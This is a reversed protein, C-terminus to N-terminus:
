FFVIVRTDLSVKKEERLFSTRQYVHFYTRAVTVRGARVEVEREEAELTVSQGTRARLDVQAQWLHELFRKKDHATKQPNLNSPLPPHVCTM